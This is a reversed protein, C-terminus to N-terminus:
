LQAQEQCAYEIRHQNISWISRSSTFRSQSVPAAIADIRGISRSPHTRIHHQSVVSVVDESWCMATRGGRLALVLHLVSGGQVKYDAATKEDNMQKGSFILRQQPPPIGEKEEVREKIREVKDTPEIDIEIEKGTLTKVKILM